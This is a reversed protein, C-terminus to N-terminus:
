NLPNPNKLQYLADCIGDAFAQDRDQRTQTKAFEGEVEIATAVYTFFVGQGIRTQYNLVNQALETQISKTPIAPNLKDLETPM